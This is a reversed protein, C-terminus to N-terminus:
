SGQAMPRARQHREIAILLFFFMLVLFGGLMQLATYLSLRGSVIGDAIKARKAEAANANEERRKQLLSFYRDQFARFIQTHSQTGKPFEMVKVTETYPVQVARSAACGIPSEYWNPCATSYTDWGRRYETRTRQVKKAVQTKKASKYRKLRDQTEPLAAAEGMVKLLSQLDARDSDFNLKGNTVADLRDETKLFADDFEDKSLQKDEPQRFPEFRARFLEFYRKSIGAYFNRHAVDVKPGRQEPSRSIEADPLEASTLETANVAAVDEQVSDPSQLVGYLGSLALWSAYVVLLTAIILILARLVRLYIAEAKNLALSFRSWVGQADADSQLM